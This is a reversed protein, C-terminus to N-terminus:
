FLLIIQNIRMKKITRLAFQAQSNGKGEQSSRHLSQFDLVEVSLAWIILSMTTTKIITLTNTERVIICQIIIRMRRIMRIATIIEIQEIRDIITITEGMGALIIIEEKMAIKDEIKEIGMM